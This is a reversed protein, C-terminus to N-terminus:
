SWITVCDDARKAGTTASLADVLGATLFTGCPLLLRKPNRVVSDAWTKLLGAGHRLLDTRGCKIIHQVYVAPTYGVVVDAARYLAVPDFNVVIIGHEDARVLQRILEARTRQVAIANLFHAYTHGGTISRVIDDGDIVDDRVSALTTKGSAPLARILM